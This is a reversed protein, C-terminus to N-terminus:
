TEKEEPKVSGTVLQHLSTDATVNTCSQLKICVGVLEALEPYQVATLILSTRFILFLLSIKFHKISISYVNFIFYLKM